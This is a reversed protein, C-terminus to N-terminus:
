AEKTPPHSSNRKRLRTGKKQTGTERQTSLITVANSLFVAAPRGAELWVGKRREKGSGTIM